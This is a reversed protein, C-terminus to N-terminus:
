LKREATVAWPRDETTGKVGHEVEVGDYRKMWGQEGFAARIASAQDPHIALLRRTASVSM